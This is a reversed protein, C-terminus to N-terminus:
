SYVFYFKHFVARLFNLPIYDAEFLGYGKLTKLPQRGCIKGQGNKTGFSNRNKKLNCELPPYTFM